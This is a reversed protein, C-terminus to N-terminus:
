QDHQEGNLKDVETDEEATVIEVWNGLYARSRGQLQNSLM